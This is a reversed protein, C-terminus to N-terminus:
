EDDVESIPIEGVVGNTIIEVEYPEIDGRVGDNALPDFYFRVRQGVPLMGTQEQTLPWVLAENDFDMVADAMSLRFITEGASIATVYCEAIDTYAYPPQPKFTLAYTSWARIVGDVGSPLINCNCTAM